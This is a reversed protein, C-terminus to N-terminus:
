NQKKKRSWLIITMGLIAALIVGTISVPFYERIKPVYKSNPKCSTERGYISAAMERVDYTYKQNDLTEVYLLGSSKDIHYDKSWFYHSVTFSIASTDKVVDKVKYQAVEV